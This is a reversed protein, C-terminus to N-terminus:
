GRVRSLSLAPRPQRARWDQITGWSMTMLAPLSWVAALNSFILHPVGEVITSVFHTVVSLSQMAAFWLPWYRDSRVALFWAVALIVLDSFVGAGAWADPPVILGIALVVFSVMCLLTAFGRELTRGFIVATAMNGLLMLWFLILVALTFM